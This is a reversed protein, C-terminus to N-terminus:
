ASPRQVGEIQTYKIDLINDARTIEFDQHQVREQIGIRTIESKLYDIDGELLRIKDKLRKITGQNNM